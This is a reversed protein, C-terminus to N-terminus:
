HFQYEFQASIERGIPSYASYFYPYSDYGDDSPHFKNFVNNVFVTVKAKDTIQKGLNANWLFYPAIRGTEQWNPLSGYRTMFVTANWDNKQWNVSGRVRSRFDFNGPDDRWDREVPDTALLQREHKLTHTWGLEWRYDGWRQTSFRWNLAADLGAVHRLSQNVPGSRVGTVRDTPEGPAGSRTVRSVIEQCFASDAAFQFPQRTRTLGTRCGGENDLIYTSSLTTVADDLKIDYYDVSMSLGDTIDWVLGAGWSEGTEETLTPEGKSTAFVSYNYVTGTCSSAALNANLCRYTDLVTSFSGSGENFVFHMDPAKFSTSYNGRVLLSEIPRWELGYGWTKADDVATIDDYKDFRGALSAKLSPLIPISFELGAAYRDRDGGGNTGTLGYTEVVTPLISRPSNLEYGQQTFDVVAAFGLPGAPLEFLDGSLTASGQTVWSEAEYKLTTSMARYQAPTLPTYLRDLNIRYRPTGTTNLRPGFFWDTVASGDLRPRTRDARYEARGLTVDWDFRDALTGRLGVAVDLSKETFRQYMADFGGYEQPTLLRQMNLNTNFGTDFWTTVRGTRDIHPGSIAETGGSLKSKSHYGQLSTWAQLGNGFTYTGYLYGSWDSNGNAITQYGVDGWSGCAPGLNTVARTGAVVTRYNFRVFEGDFRDCVGAPPAIYSNAANGPRNLRIAATPQNNGLEPTPRPNDDTSDMFDRQFAFVPEDAFYELAYTVSWNDGSRGGVWQVNGFDGGGTTSTGGRVTLKDGDFNTKLVVNVVGAVADSGYIASAGGSLIEIRDVAASPINGFNQFNSQGNYPFPYDAARRGNILLLTRGPGLGRLNVPSGNPTFGGASNLENQVTGGNQTLTSLADFVTVFGERQIQASSIVTVPSPGEIQTRKIRSGTVVVGAVDTPKDSGGASAAAPEQAFAAGAAGFLMASAVARSLRSRRLGHHNSSM